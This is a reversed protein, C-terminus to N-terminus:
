GARAALKQCPDIANLTAMRPQIFLLRIGHKKTWAGFEHSIMESGHDSGM